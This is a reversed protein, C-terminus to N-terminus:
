PGCPRAALRPDLPQADDLCRMFGVSYPVTHYRDDQRSLVGTHPICCKWRTAPVRPRRSIWRCARSADRRPWRTSRSQWGQQPLVSVPEETGMDMDVYIREGDTFCGMTHTACREPGKFWRLDSGDGDRRMVGLWTPLTSDWAFHVRGQKM